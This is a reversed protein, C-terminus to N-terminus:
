VFNVWGSVFSEFGSTGRLLMVNVLKVMQNGKWPLSPLILGLTFEPKAMLFPSACPTTPAPMPYLLAKLKPLM